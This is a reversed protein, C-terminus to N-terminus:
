FLGVRYRPLPAGEGERAPRQRSVGDAPLCERSAAVSLKLNAVWVARRREAAPKEQRKGQWPRTEAEGVSM